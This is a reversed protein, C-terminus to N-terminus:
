SKRQHYKGYEDNTLLLFITPLIGMSNVALLSIFWASKGMRAARWMGWGKLITDVIAFVFLIGLLPGFNYAGFIFDRNQGLIHFANMM